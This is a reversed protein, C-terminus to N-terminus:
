HAITKAVNFTHNLLEKSSSISILISEPRSMKGKGKREKKGRKIGNQNQLSKERDQVM